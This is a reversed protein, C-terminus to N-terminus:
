VLFVYKQVVLVIDFYNVKPETIDVELSFHQFSSTSTRAIGRRLHQSSLAVVRQLYINPTQPDNQKSHAEAVEGEVV